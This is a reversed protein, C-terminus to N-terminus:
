KEPLSWILARKERSITKQILGQSNLEALAAPVRDRCEAIGLTEAEDILEATTAEIMDELLAIILTKAKDQDKISM